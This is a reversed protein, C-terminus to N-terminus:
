DSIFVQRFRLKGTAEEPFETIKASTINLDFLTNVVDPDESAKTLIKKIDVTENTNCRIEFSRERDITCKCPSLVEPKPCKGAFCQTTFLTLSVVLFIFTELFYSLFILSKPKSLNRKSM